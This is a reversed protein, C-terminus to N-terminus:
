RSRRLSQNIYRREQSEVSDVDVHRTAGQHRHDAVHAAPLGGQEGGHQPFGLLPTAVDGDLYAACGTTFTHM